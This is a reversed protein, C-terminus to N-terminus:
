DGELYGDVKSFDEDEKFLEKQEQTAPTVEFECYDDGKTMAKIHTQVYNENFALYKAADVYCYLKGLEEQGYKRWLKGLACGHARMNEGEREIKDHMGFPPISLSEGKSFNEPNPELGKEEIEKRRAEGIHTGYQKIAKLILQKGREEGLEETLIEAYSLHLLAIRESVTKIQKAAEEKMTKQFRDIKIINAARSSSSSNSTRGSKKVGKKSGSCM